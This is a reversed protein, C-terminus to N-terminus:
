GNIDLTVRHHLQASTITVFGTEGESNLTVSVIRFGPARAPIGPDTCVTEDM